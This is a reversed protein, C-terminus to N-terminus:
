ANGPSGRRWGDYQEDSVEEMWDAVKDIGRVLEAEAPDSISDTIQNPVL